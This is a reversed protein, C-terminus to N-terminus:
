EGNRRHEWQAGFLFRTWFRQWRTPASFRLLWGESAYIGHAVIATSVIQRQTAPPEPDDLARLDSEEGPPKRRPM